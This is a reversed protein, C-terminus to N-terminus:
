SHCYRVSKVTVEPGGSLNVYRGARTSWQMYRTEHTTVTYCTPSTVTYTISRQEYVPASANASGTVLFGAAVALPAVLIAAWRALRGLVTSKCIM